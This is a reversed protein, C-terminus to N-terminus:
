RSGKSYRSEKRGDDEDGDPRMNTPVDAAKMAVIQLELRSGNKATTSSTVECRIVFSIEDGYECDCDIGLKELEEDGLTICLGWPYVPQDPTEAMPAITGYASDKKLAEASRAMSVMGAM